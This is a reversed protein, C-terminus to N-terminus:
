GRPAALAHGAPRPVLHWAAPGRLLTPASVRQGVRDPIPRGRPSVRPPDLQTFPQAVNDLVGVIAQGSQEIPIVEIQTGLWLLAGFPLLFKVSAVLWLWYRVHARNRRFALTLLAIAAAFVTSQWLHNWLMDLM